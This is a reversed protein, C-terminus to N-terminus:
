KPSRAIRSQRIRQPLREEELQLGLEDSRADALEALRPTLGLIFLVVAYIGLSVGPDGREAKGLTTRTIFAREAMITTSIRRRLRASRIDGGLKALAWKVPFRDGRRRACDQKLASRRDANVRDGGLEWEVVAYCARRM